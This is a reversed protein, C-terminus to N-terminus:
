FISQLILFMYLPNIIIGRHGKGKLYFKIGEVDVKDAKMTLESKDAKKVLESKDAKKLLESKDAKIKLESKDAKIKLESKDAKENELKSLFTKISQIEKNFNQIDRTNDTAENRLVDVRKELDFVLKSITDIHKDLPCTELLNFSEMDTFHLGVLINRIRQWYHQFQQLDQIIDVSGHKIENRLNRALFVFAGISKDNQELVEIKWGGKPKLRIVSRIVAVLLTIDFDKSHTQQNSPCLVDWQDDSLVKHLPHKVDQKCQLMRQYLLTAEQPLGKYTAANGLNHLVSILVNKVCYEIALNVRIWYESKVIHLPTSMKTLHKTM